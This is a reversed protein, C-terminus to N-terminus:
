AERDFLEISTSGYQIPDLDYFNKRSVVKIDEERPGGCAICAGRDDDFTKQHCYGCYHKEM